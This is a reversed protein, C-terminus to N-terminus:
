DIQQIIAIANTRLFTKSNVKIFKKAHIKLVTENLDESKVVLDFLLNNTTIIRIKMFMIGKEARTNYIIKKNNDFLKRFIHSLNFYLVWFM